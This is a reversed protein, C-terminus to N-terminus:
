CCPTIEGKASDGEDGSPLVELAPAEIGRDGGEFDLERGFDACGGLNEVASRV